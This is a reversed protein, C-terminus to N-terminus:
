CLETYSAVIPSCGVAVGCGIRVSNSSKSSVRYWTSTHNNDMRISPNFLYTQVLLRYLASQNGERLDLLHWPKYSLLYM